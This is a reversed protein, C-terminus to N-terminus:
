LGKKGLYLWAGIQSFFPESGPKTSKHKYILALAERPSLSDADVEDLLARL